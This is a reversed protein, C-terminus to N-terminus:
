SDTPAEKSKHINFLSLFDQIAFDSVFLKM